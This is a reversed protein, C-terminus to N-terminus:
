LKKLKLEVDQADQFANDRDMGSSLSDAEKILNGLVSLQDKSLHHGAALNILSDKNTVNDIDSDALQKFVSSYDDIFQATWLVHKHSHVGKYVPCFSTEDKCYDKLFNSTQTSGSDARQYFKGIDHLLAALYVKERTTDMNNMIIKTKRIM